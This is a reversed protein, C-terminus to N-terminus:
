ILNRFLHLSNRPSSRKAHQILGEGFFTSFPNSLGINFECKFLYMWLLSCTSNQAVQHIVLRVEALTHHRRTITARSECWMGTAHKNDKSKSPVSGDWLAYFFFFFFTWSNHKGGRRRSTHVFGGAQIGVSTTNKRWRTPNPDEPPPPVPEYIVAKALFIWSKQSVSVFVTGCGSESYQNSEQPNKGHHSQLMRTGNEPVHSPAPQMRAVSAPRALCM